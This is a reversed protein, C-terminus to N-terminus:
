CRLMSVYVVKVRDGVIRKVKDVMDVLRDKLETKKVMSIKVPDPVQYRLQWEEKGGGKQVIKVM